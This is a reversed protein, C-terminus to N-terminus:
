YRIIISQETVKLFIELLSLTPFVNIKLITVTLANLHVLSSRICNCSVRECSCCLFSVFCSLLCSEGILIIFVSGVESRKYKIVIYAQLFCFFICFFFKLCFSRNGALFMKFPELVRVKLGLSRIAVRVRVM